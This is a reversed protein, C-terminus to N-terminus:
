SSAQRLNVGLSNYILYWLTCLPMNLHSPFFLLVFFWHACVLQWSHLCWFLPKATCTAPVPWQMLHSSAFIRQWSFWNVFLFILSLRIILAWASLRFRSTPANMLALQLGVTYGKKSGGGKHSIQLLSAIIISGFCSIISKLLAGLFAHNHEWNLVIM